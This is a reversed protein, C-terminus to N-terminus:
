EANRVKEKAFEDAQSIYKDSEEIYRTLTELADM